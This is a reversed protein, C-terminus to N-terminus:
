LVDELKLTITFLLDYRIIELTIEKGKKSQFIEKIKQITLYHANKNDVKSIVDGVQLGSKEAPSNKRIYYVEFIPKLQYKYTYKLNDNEHILHSLNVVNTTSNVNKRITEKFWQVGNHQIEIGSLNYNFPKSYNNNQRLYVTENKFDFFWNFRNLIGGGLSGNRDKITNIQAYSVSDPYSIIAKKFIFKNIKLSSIKTKKGNIEGGLGQGLFDNIYNSNCKITDNEFLWMSEGLGTDILLKLNNSENENRKLNVNLYPRNNQVIIEEKYYKKLKREITKTISKYLVIKKKTYNLEVFYDKFFDTGLIGNIPVGLKNIISINQETVLFINFNSNLYKKIKLSNNKSSYADISEGFGLGSLKIKNSDNFVVSDNEPYSFLINQNSGTDLVMKFDVENIKVDIIILNNLLEFPIIIKNKENKPNLQSFCFLTTLIFLLSFINKKNM